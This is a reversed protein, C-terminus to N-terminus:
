VNTCCAFHRQIFRGLCVAMGREKPVMKERGPGTWEGDYEENFGEM